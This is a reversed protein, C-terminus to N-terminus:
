RRHALGPTRELHDKGAADGDGAVLEEAVLAIGPDDGVELHAEVPQCAHLRIHDQRSM